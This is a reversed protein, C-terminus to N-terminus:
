RKEDPRNKLAISLHALSIGYFIGSKTLSNRHVANAAACLIFIKLKRHTLASAPTLFVRYSTLAYLFPRRFWATALSQPVQGVPFLVM